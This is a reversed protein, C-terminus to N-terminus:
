GDHAVTVSSYGSSTPHVRDLAWSSDQIEVGCVGVAVRLQELVVCRFLLWRCRCRRPQSIYYIETAPPIQRGSRIPASTPPHARHYICSAQISRTRHIHLVLPRKKLSSQDVGAHIYQLSIHSNISALTSRWYHIQNLAHSPKSTLHCIKKAGLLSPCHAPAPSYASRREERM